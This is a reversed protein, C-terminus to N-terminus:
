RASKSRSFGSLWEEPLFQSIAIPILWHLAPYRWLIVVSLILSAVGGRLVLWKIAAARVRDEHEGELALQLRAEFYPSIAPQPDQALLKLLSDADSENM